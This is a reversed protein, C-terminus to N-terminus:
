VTEKWVLWKRKDIPISSGKNEYKGIQIGILLSSKITAEYLLISYFLKNWIDFVHSTDACDGSSSAWPLFM